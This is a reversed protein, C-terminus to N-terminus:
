NSPKGGPLPGTEEGPRSIRKNEIKGGVVVTGSGAVVFYVDTAGEHQEPNLPETIVRSGGRHVLSFWHTRTVMTKMFDKPALVSQNGQAIRAQLVSHYGRLDAGKFLTPEGQDPALSIKSYEGPPLAGGLAPPRNATAPQQAAAAASGAPAGANGALYALIMSGLWVAAVARRKLIFM